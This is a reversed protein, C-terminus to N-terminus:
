RRRHGRKRLPRSADSTTGSSTPWPVCPSKRPSTSAGGGATRANLEQQQDATLVMGVEGSGPEVLRGDDFVFIRDADAMRSLTLSAKWLFARGWLTAWAFRERIVPSTLLPSSAKPDGNQTARM